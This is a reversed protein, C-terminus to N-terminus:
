GVGGVLVTAIPFCPTPRERDFCVTSESAALSEAFCDVLNVFFRLLARRVEHEVAGVGSVELVDQLRVRRSGRAYPAQAGVRGRLAVCFQVLCCREVVAVGFIQRPAM